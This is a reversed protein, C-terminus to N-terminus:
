GGFYWNVVPVLIILAVWGGALRSRWVELSLLRKEYEVIKEPTLARGEASIIRAELASVVQEQHRLEEKTALRTLLDLKMEALEARLVERSVSIREVGEAM